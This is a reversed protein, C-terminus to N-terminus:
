LAEGEPLRECRRQEPSLALLAEAVTGAGPISLRPAIEALPVLVFGRERLRPHPVMLGQESVQRQGHLLLDLDLTRPGYRPGQRIRGFAQEIALLARWLARPALATVLLAVANVYPPQPVPGWPPTRYLASRACLRTDPLSALALLARRVTCVADGLNAGLGVVAIEGPIM